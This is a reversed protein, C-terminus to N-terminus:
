EIILIEVLNDKSAGNWVFNVLRIIMMILYESLIRALVIKMGGYGRKLEGQILM